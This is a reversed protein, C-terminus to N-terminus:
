MKSAIKEYTGRDVKRIIGSNKWNIIMSKVVLYDVDPRINAADAITFVAPLRDFFTDNSGSNIRGNSSIKYSNNKMEREANNRFYKLLIGYYYDCCIKFFNLWGPNQYGTLLRETADPHAMLYQEATKCGDAWDPLATECYDLQEVLDTAMQTLMLSCTLRMTSVPIRIRFRAAVRDDNKMTTKRVGELWEMSAQELKELTISGKMKRLAHAVKVLVEKAEESHHTRKSLPAFTNDPTEAILTRFMEGNMTDQGLARQIGDPTTCIAGNLHVHPIEIRGRENAYQQIFKAGDYSMRILASFDSNFARKKTSTLIDAEPLYMWGHEGQLLELREQISTVSTRGGLCYYKVKPDKPQDKKNKSNRLAEHYAKDVQYAEEDNKAFPTELITLVEEVRSKDSGPEGVLYNMQNLHKKDGHIDLEVNTALAGILPASVTVGAMLMSDPLNEFAQKMGNPLEGGFGDKILDVIYVDSEEIDLEALDVKVAQAAPTQLSNIADRLRRTMLTTERSCASKICKMKQEPSLGDYCPIVENLLEANNDTIARLASALEYTFTDRDGQQPTRGQYNVNWYADIIDSYPIGRYCRPKKEAGPETVENNINNTAVTENNVVKSSETDSTEPANMVELGEAVFEDIEPAFLVDKDMMIINDGPVLFCCRALDQTHDFDKQGSLEGVWEMTQMTNMGVPKQVLLKMGKGSPSIFALPAVMKGEDILPFFHRYFFAAPSDSLNDYDMMCWPSAIANTNTRRNPEFHAHFMAVPLMEKFRTSALDKADKREKEDAIAAIRAIETAYCQCRESVKGDNLVREFEEQTCPRTSAKYNDAIDFINKIKRM